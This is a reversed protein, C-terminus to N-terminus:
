GRIRALKLAVDPLSAVQVVLLGGPLKYHIMVTALITLGPIGCQMHGGLSSTDLCDLCKPLIASVHAHHIPSSLCWHIAALVTFCSNHESFLEIISGTTFGGLIWPRIWLVHSKIAPLGIRPGFLGHKALSFLLLSSLTQAFHSCSRLLFLVLCDLLLLKSIGLCM